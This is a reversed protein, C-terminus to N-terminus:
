GSYWLIADLRVVSAVFAQSYDDRENEIFSCGVEDTLSKWGHLSTKVAAALAKVGAYTAAMCTMQIRVREMHSTGTHAIAPVGSIRQYAINPMAADQPAALPYIRTGVLAKVASDTSLRTYLKEELM